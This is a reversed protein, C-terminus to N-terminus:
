GIITLCGGGGGGDGPGIKYSGSSNPGIRYSGGCCCYNKM